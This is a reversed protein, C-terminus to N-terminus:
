RRWTKPGRICTSWPFIPMGTPPRDRGGGAADREWIGMAAGADAQMAREFEGRRAAPVHAAFSIARIHLHPLRAAFAEFREHGVTGSEELFATVADQLDEARKVEVRIADLRGNISETVRVEQQAHLIGWQLRALTACALVGVLAIAVAISQQRRLMSTFM